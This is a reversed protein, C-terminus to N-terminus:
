RDWESRLNDMQKDIDEAKMPSMKGRLSKVDFERDWESRLDKIQEQMEEAGKKSLKGILSSLKTSDEPPIYCELLLLGDISGDNYYYRKVQRGHPLNQFEVLLSKFRRKQEQEIDIEIGYEEIRQTLLKDEEEYLESTDQHDQDSYWQMLEHRIEEM